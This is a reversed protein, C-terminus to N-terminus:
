ARAIRGTLARATLGTVAIGATISIALTVAIAFAHPAVISWNWAMGIAIPAFFLTLHRVLLMAGREIAPLPLVGSRILAFAAIMALVNGSIPLHSAGAIANAGLGICWLLAFQLVLQTAASLRAFRRGHARAQLTSM